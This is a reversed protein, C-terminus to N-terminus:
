PSTCDRNAQTWLRRLLSRLGSGGKDSTYAPRRCGVRRFVDVSGALFIRMSFVKFGGCSCYQPDGMRDCKRAVETHATADATSEAGVWGGLMLRQTRYPRFARYPSAALSRPIPAIIVRM